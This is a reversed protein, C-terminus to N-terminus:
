EGKQQGEYRACIRAVWLSTLGAAILLLAPRIYYLGVGISTFGAIGFFDVLTSVKIKM